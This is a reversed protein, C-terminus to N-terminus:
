LLTIGARPPRQGSRYYAANQRVYFDFDHQWARRPDWEFLVVYAQYLTENFQAFAHPNRLFIELYGACFEGDNQFVYPHGLPMPEYEHYGNQRIATYRAYELQKGRLFLERARANFFQGDRPHLGPLLGRCEGFGGSSVDFHDLMHGLEHLFPAVGPTDGGFGETLRSVVLQMRCHQADYCGGGVGGNRAFAHGDAYLDFRKPQSLFQALFDRRYFLLEALHGAIVERAFDDSARAPHFRVDLNKHHAIHKQIQAFDSRQADSLMRVIPFMQETTYIQPM